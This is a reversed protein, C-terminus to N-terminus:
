QTNGKILEHISKMQPSEILPPLQDSRDKAVIGEAGRTLMFRQQQGGIEKIYLYCVIDVFGAVESALKGSLAPKRQVVGHQDKDEAALATFLTPVPLDRFMRVLTRIQNTNKGWHRMQPMDVEIDPNKWSEERMIGAMSLKQMESLSDLVICGYGHTESRWLEDYIKRIDDYNTIRITDVNPYRRDLSMTGGEVDLILVKRFEPIEDASGCLVTKGAGAEGYILM